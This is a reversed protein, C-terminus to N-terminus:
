LAELVDIHPTYSVIVETPGATLMCDQKVCRTQIVDRRTDLTTANVEPKVHVVSRFINTLPAGSSMNKFEQTRSEDSPSKEVSGSSACLTRRGCFFVTKFLRFYGNRFNRNMIGYLVTNISSNCFALWTAATLFWDPMGPWFSFLLSVLIGPSWSIVFAIVISVLTFILKLERKMRRQKQVLLQRTVQPCIM